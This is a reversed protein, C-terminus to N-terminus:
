CEHFKLGFISKCVKTIRLLCMRNNQHQIKGHTRLPYRGSAHKSTNPLGDYHYYAKELNFSFRVYDRHAILVGNKKQLFPYHNKKM